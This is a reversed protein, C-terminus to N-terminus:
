ICLLAEQKNLMVKVSMKGSDDYSITDTLSARFHGQEM